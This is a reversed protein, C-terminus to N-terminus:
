NLRLRRRHGSQKRISFCCDVVTCRSDVLGVILKESLIWYLCNHWMKWKEESDRLEKTKSNMAVDRRRKGDLRSNPLGFLGIASGSLWLSWLQEMHQLIIARFIKYISESM